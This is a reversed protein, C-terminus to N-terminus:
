PKFRFWEYVMIALVLVFVLAMAWGIYDKGYAFFTAWLNEYDTTVIDPM